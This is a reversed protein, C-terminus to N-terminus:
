PADRCFLTSHGDKPDHTTAHASSTSFCPRNIRPAPGHITPEPTGPTPRASDMLVHPVHDTPNHVTTTTFRGGVDEGVGVCVRNKLWHPLDGFVDGVLDCNVLESGWTVLGLVCVCVDVDCSLSREPEERPGLRCRHDQRTCKGRYPCFTPRPEITRDAPPLAPTRRVIDGPPTSIGEASTLIPSRSPTLIHHHPPIHTSHFHTGRGCVCGVGLESTWKLPESPGNQPGTKPDKSPWKM